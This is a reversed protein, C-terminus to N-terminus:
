SKHECCKFGSDIYNALFRVRIKRKRCLSVTADPDEVSEPLVFKVCRVDVDKCIDHHHAPIALIKMGRDHEHGKEDEETLIVALAVRKGPCVDKITLDLQLIRGLSQLKVTGADFVVSDECGEIFIEKPYPCVETVPEEEQHMWEPCCPLGAEVFEETCEPFEM